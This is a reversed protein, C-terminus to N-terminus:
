RNRHIALSAKIEDWSVVNAPDRAVDALRQELADRRNASMPATDSDGGISQWLEEILALRTDLDLQDLGLSKLSISM